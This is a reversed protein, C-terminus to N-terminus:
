EARVTEGCYPCDPERRSDKRFTFRYRCNKCVLSIRGNDGADATNAMKQTKKEQILHGKTVAETKPVAKVTDNSAHKHSGQANKLDGSRREAVCSPCVMMKYVHDLTFSAAKAERGCRRCKVRIDDSIM